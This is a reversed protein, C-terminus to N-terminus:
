IVWSIFTIVTQGGIRQVFGSNARGGSAVKAGGDLHAYITELQAYDHANPSLHSPNNLTNNADNMCSATNVHDLGFDHGLEQCLVHRRATNNGYTGTFYFDNVKTTAQSIHGSADLWVEAIGFWLNPGYNANCVRIKGALPRCALRTLLGSTGGQLSTNIVSSAGWEASVVPLISDWTGTVSDVVTLSVPNSSRAWHYNGWSHNAEAAPVILLSLAAVLALPFRKM